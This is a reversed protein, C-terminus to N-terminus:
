RCTGSVNEAPAPPSVTLAGADPAWAGGPQYMSKRISSAPTGDTADHTLTEQHLRSRGGCGRPRPAAHGRDRDLRAGLRHGRGGGRRRPLARRYAGTLLGGRSGVRAVPAVASRRMTLVDCLMRARDFWAQCSIVWRGRRTTRVSARRTRMSSSWPARGSARSPSSTPSWSRMSTRISGPASLTTAGQAGSGRVAPSTQAPRHPHESGPVADEDRRPTSSDCARASLRSAARACGALLRSTAPLCPPASHPEEAPRRARPALLLPRRPFSGRRAWRRPVGVCTDRRSGACRRWSSARTGAQPGHARPAM